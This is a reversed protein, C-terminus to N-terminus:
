LWDRTAWLVSLFARSLINQIMFVFTESLKSQIRCPYCVCKAMSVTMVLRLMSQWLVSSLRTDRTMRCELHELLPGGSTHACCCTQCKTYLSFSNSSPHLVLQESHRWLLLYIQPLMNPVCWKSVCELVNFGSPICKASYVTCAGTFELPTGRTLSPIHDCNAHM